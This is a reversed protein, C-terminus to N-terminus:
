EQKFIIDLSEKLSHFLKEQTYKFYQPHYYQIFVRKEIRTYYVKIGDSLSISVWRADPYLLKLCKSVVRGGCLVIDPNIEREIQNLLEDQSLPCTKFSNYLKDDNTQSSGGNKNINVVAIKRLECSKNRVVQKTREWSIDSSADGYHRLLYSWIVTNGWTPSKPDAGKYLYKLLRFEDDEKTKDRRVAEKLVFLVKRSQNHFYDPSKYSIIGDLIKTAM